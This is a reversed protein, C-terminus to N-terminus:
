TSSTYRTKDDDADQLSKMIDQHVDNPFDKMHKVEHLLSRTYFRTDINGIQANNNLYIWTDSKISLASSDPSHLSTM